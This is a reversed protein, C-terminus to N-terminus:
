PAAAPAGPVDQIPDAEVRIRFPHAPLKSDEDFLNADAPNDQWAYRVEVPAPVAESWVKIGNPSRLEARAKVFRGDAGAVAFGQPEKGDRTALRGREADFSILIGEGDRRASKTRPGRWPLDPKGHCTAIAWNALRRGVTRKDRPHIDDADGVDITAVVGTNPSTRETGLQADRLEPWIGAVAAEPEHRRFAALSVIGFPMDPQGFAGRWSRITLPLLTRYAEADQISGANSEGQYWIAGRVCYGAFPAIMANFMSAPDSTGAGPARDRRPREPPPAIGAADRGPRALWTGSLPIIGGGAAPCTIRMAEPIATFGGEGSMDLVELALTCPGAKVMSGPIRYRRPTTWDGVTNAVARGDIFLIDADDIPGLEVFCEKGSWTEPVEVTRRYWEIGDRGKREDDKSWQLPLRVPVWRDLEAPDEKAFWAGTAGPDSANVGDWWAKGADQFRKRAAEYARDREKDPTADWAEVARALEAVREMYLPESGLTARDTWPEARTGGWNSEIIGVPVGTEKRLDLAFWFGVAGMRPATEGSLVQWAGPVTFEQHNSTRKEVRLVRVQPDAAMRVGDALQEGTAALPWEMNSQGGAVWVEGVVVDGVTVTNAGRVELTMPDASAALAPLEVSFRGSQGAVAKGSRLVTGKSDRLEATVQENVLASGYIRVPRDRQLVMHETFVSPLAVDAAASAHLALASLVAITM